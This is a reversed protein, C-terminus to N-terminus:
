KPSAALRIDCSASQSSDCTYFHGDVRVSTATDAGTVSGFNANPAQSTLTRTVGESDRYTATLTLQYADFCAIPGSLGTAWELRPQNANDTNHTVNLDATCTITQGSDTVFTLGQEDHATTVAAGAVQQGFLLPTAATALGTAAMAM